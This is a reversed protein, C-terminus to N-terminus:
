SQRLRKDLTILLPPMFLFDVFLSYALTMALLAGTVISPTFHSATLVVFGAVLVVTTVSLAVGVTNFTFRMADAGYLGLNRRAHLYKSLFHVTDDVVIGISICMVIAASLDIKGHVLGWTGYALAAPALNAMLSLLGLRLSRLAFVLLISIVILAIVMGKLLGKINRHNIHAFVMDLGTGEAVTLEPAQRAVWERARRDLNLLDGSDGRQVYAVMQTASRDVNVTNELGLGLPLSLEYLLLYQAILAASDPLQYFVPDDNHLNQNLRKIVHTLRSVHSVEPQAEYWTAFRELAKMYEPEHIGYGRGSDVSYRIVQLWHLNEDIADLSRRAEFTEDFYEHWRESLMNQPIFSALTLILLGVTVLLVRYHCIVWNAFGSMMAELVRGASPNRIGAWMLFAPLLTLSLVFAYAVGVAIMNGLERYPPSDSFNLILVGVITTISTIFIPMMNIRLSEALATEKARGRRLEYYYSSLIHVSDAVAITMVVRPVFGSVAALVANYWGFTGMTTVVAFSIVLALLIVVYSLVVLTKLDGTVANGLARNFSTTGTLHIDVEPFRARIQPM